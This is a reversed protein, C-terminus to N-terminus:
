GAADDPSRKFLEELPDPGDGDWPIMALDKADVDAPDLDREDRDM